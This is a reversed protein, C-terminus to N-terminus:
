SFSPSNANRRGVQVVGALVAGAMPLALAGLRLGLFGDGGVGDLALFALGGCVLLAGSVLRWTPAVAGSGGREFRGFVLAFPVLAVVYVLMWVPRVMWWVGSGPELALGFGGASLTGAVVLTSATLHWLFITMIMGNVLVTATWATPGALWRRVPAELSLLLGVQVLGIALMPLKPTLSNSVAEGPVSVLSVPYPGVSVMWALAVAGLVTWPLATKAGAIRGDHWAYGLQHVSLWIFAYNAWGVVHLDAAFFLADDIVAAIVLVWFSWMGFRRWAAYTVPV